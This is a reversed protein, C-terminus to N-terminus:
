LVWSVASFQESFLILLDGAVVPCKGDPRDLVNGLVVARHSERHLKYILNRFRASHSHDMYEVRHVPVDEALNVEVVHGHPGAYMRALDMSDTCFLAVM